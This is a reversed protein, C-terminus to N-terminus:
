IINQCNSKFFVRGEVIGCRLMNSSQVLNGGHVCCNSRHGFRSDFGVDGVERGARAGLVRPIVNALQLQVAQAPRVARGQAFLGQAQGTRFSGANQTQRLAVAHSHHRTRIRPGDFHRHPGHQACATHVHQLPLRKAGPPHGIDDFLEFQGVHVVAFRIVTVDGLQAFDVKVVVHHKHPVAGGRADLHGVAVPNRGVTRPQRHTIGGAGHKGHVHGPALQIHHGIGPLFHQTAFTAM